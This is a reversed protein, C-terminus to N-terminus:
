LNTALYLIIAIIIYIILDKNEEIINSITKLIQLIYNYITNKNAYKKLIKTRCKHCKSIHKIIDDCNNNTFKEIIKKEPSINHGWADNLSCFLM